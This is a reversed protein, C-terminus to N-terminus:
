FETGDGRRWLQRCLAAALSRRPTRGDSRHMVRLDGQLYQCTRRSHLLLLTLLLLLLLLRHDVPGTLTSRVVYGDALFVVPTTGRNGLTLISLKPLALKSERSSPAFAM